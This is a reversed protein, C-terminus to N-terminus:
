FKTTSWSSQLYSCQIDWIDFKNTISGNNGRTIFEGFGKSNISLYGQKYEEDVLLMVKQGQKLWQPQFFNLTQSSMGSAPM